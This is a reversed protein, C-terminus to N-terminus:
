DLDVVTSEEVELGDVPDGGVIAANGEGITDDRDSLDETEEVVVGAGSRRIAVGVVGGLERFNGIDWVVVGLGGTVGARWIAGIGLWYEKRLAGM